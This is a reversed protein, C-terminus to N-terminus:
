KQLKKNYLGINCFGHHIPNRHAYIVANLFQIKDSIPNRKFNKIYM